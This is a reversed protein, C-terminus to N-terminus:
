KEQKILTKSVRFFAEICDPNAVALNAAFNEVPLIVRDCESHPRHLPPPPSQPLAVPWPIDVRCGFEAQERSEIRSLMDNFSDVLLGTEGGSRM